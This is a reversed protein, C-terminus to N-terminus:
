SDRLGPRHVLVCAHYQIARFYTPSNYFYHTIYHQTLICQVLNYILQNLNCAHPCQLIYAHLDRPAVYELHTLALDMEFREEAIILQHDTGGHVCGKITPRYTNLSAPHVHEGISPYTM